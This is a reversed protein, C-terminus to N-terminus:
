GSVPEAAPDDSEAFGQPKGLRGTRRIGIVTFVLALVLALACAVSISTQLQFSTATLVFTQFFNKYFIYCNIAIGIIPLVLNTVINIESRHFRRHYLINAVCTLTYPILIFFVYAEGIWGFALLPNRQQYLMILVPLVVCCGLVFLQANWPTQNKDTKAFVRPTLGERGLAYLQRSAAISIASFAAFVATFGTLPVLIRLWSVYHGAVLYIPTFQGSAVYGAMVHAPVANVIGFSTFVWYLGAGVTVYITARPVLSRPTKTEEAMPAVIDFAAIALVAFLLANLFGTWGATAAAPDLPRWSLNGDVGQKIMIFLCLLAVFGAEITIFLGVIKTSIRIDKKTMYGVVLIPLLGALTASLYGTHVGFFNLFSNFFLGFMVPQLICGVIYAIVLVWGLWVGLPPTTAEWLWTLTAGTSPRRSNMIAYSAATPLMAVTVAAFALPVIPGTIGEMIGFNFYATLALGMYAIGMIVLGWLGLANRNLSGQDSPSTASQPSTARAMAEEQTPLALRRTVARVAGTVGTVGAIGTIGTFLIL